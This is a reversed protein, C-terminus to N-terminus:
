TVDTVSYNVRVRKVSVRFKIPGVSIDQRASDTVFNFNQFIYKQTSNNLFSKNLGRPGLIHNGSSMTLLVFYSMMFVRVHVNDYVLTKVKIEPVSFIGLCLGSALCWPRHCSSSIRSLIFPAWESQSKIIKELYSSIDHNLIFM